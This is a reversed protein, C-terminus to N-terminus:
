RGSRAQNCSWSDANRGRNSSVSCLGQSGRIMTNFDFSTPEDLQQFISCAYDMSNWDSLACTALLSSSCCSDWFLGLKLIQVHVQKFEELSKCKKLLYLYEQEKQKLSLDSSQPLDKSPLLHHNYNLVSTGMM